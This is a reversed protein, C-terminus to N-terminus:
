GHGVPDVVLGYRRGVADGVRDIGEPEEVAIGQGGSQGYQVARQHEVPGQVSGRREGAAAHRDGVASQVGGGPAPDHRIAAPRGRLPPTIRPPVHLLVLLKEAAWALVRSVSAVRILVTM